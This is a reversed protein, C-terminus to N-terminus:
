PTAIRLIIILILGCEIYGLVLGAVATDKGGIRGNSSKIVFLAVHGFIVALIGPVLSCIGLLGFILSTVAMGSASVKPQFAPAIAVAPGGPLPVYGPWRPPPPPLPPLGFFPSQQEPGPATQGSNPQIEGPQEEPLQSEM